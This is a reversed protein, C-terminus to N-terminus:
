KAVNLLKFYYFTSFIVFIHIQLFLVKFYYYSFVASTVHTQDFFHLFNMDLFFFFEFPNFIYM